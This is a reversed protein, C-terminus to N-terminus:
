IFELPSTQENSLTSILMKVKGGETLPIDEVVELHIELEEGVKRKYASEIKQAEKETFEPSPMIRINMVGPQDQFYQFRVVDDFISGHMNLAALSIKTSQKGIVFEQKRRGEVEDIRNWNRGCECSPSLIKAWDGTRYRILPMSFNFLCTGVIEGREGEEFCSEGNEKVIEVFGYDPMLHYSSNKECEGGLAVRESLGYWSFTKSGFGKEIRVRQHQLVGESGLLVAQIKPLSGSLDHRILYEALIDLASPYGHLFQPQFRILQDVYKGLNKESMHFPSFQLENYIPNEQWFEGPKLNDFPVGRFVAKRAKSEYGVRKWQRHMYGLEMAQSQDDLFLRLQNGSTGGTTTEYHPMRDFGRPLYREVDAQIDDKDLFPFASLAELPKFREVIGKLARYAPVESTAYSLLEGLAKEQYGLIDERSARDFWSGRSFVERYKKGALWSFPISCVLKRLPLPMGEYLRRKLNFSM